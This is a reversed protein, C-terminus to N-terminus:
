AERNNVLVAQIKLRHGLLFQFDKFWLNAADHNQPIQYAEALLIHRGDQLLGHGYLDTPM